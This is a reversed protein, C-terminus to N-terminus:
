WNLVKITDVLIRLSALMKEFCVQIWIKIYFFVVLDEYRESKQQKSKCKRLYTAINPLFHSVSLNELSVVKCKARYETKTYLGKTKFYVTFKVVM